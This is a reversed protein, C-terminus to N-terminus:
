SVRIPVMIKKRAVCIGDKIIYCEVFHNGRFNTEEYHTLKDTQIIQGRVCDNKKALDGQNKVKWYINYPAPTNTSGSFYLQYGPLLLDRRSLINDLWGVFSDRNKVKCNLDLQYRIDISFINDVFEETERFDYLEDEAAFTSLSKAVADEQILNTWYSHNFFDYWAKFAQKEDCKSDFLIDLDKIKNTLRSCLNKMKQNDSGVLKLSHQSDTPNDVETHDELRNRIEVISYYFREDVRSYATQIKEDALVSQILGGPMNVWTERSKSFMKLLRVVERLHYNHHKNQDLFWKTIAKPDRPRWDSGCHEYKYNDEEDKFRRYIAFDIHYGDNYVIRVCNTKAFPEVKFNTCKKKLAKVIINKTAITGEPLKDKEFIIAVDIDYENNENQTVTSMAVSGQVINEALKIETGNEANYDALGENLRKINLKKKQFLTDKESKQLIVFKKYFTNFKKSM